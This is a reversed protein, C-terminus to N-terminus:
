SIEKRLKALFEEANDSYETERWDPKIQCLLIEAKRRSTLNSGTYLTGSSMRHMRKGFGSVLQGKGPHNNALETLKDTNVKIIERKLKKPMKWCEQFIPVTLAWDNVGREENVYTALYIAPRRPFSIIRIGLEERVERAINKTLVELTLAKMVNTEEVKGGSLEWNFRYKEDDPGFVSGKETRIQLLLDGDEFLLGAFGGITKPREMKEM